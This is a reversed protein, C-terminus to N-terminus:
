KKSLKKIINELEYEDGEKYGNHKYVVRGNQDVILTYPVDKFNFARRLSGTKDSLITYDWKKARVTPKVRAFTKSDDISVAVIEVNYKEQWEPYFDMLNDLEKKCPSCWTAWFNLITIQGRKAVKKLNVKKGDLKTAVVNPVPKQANITAISFCVVLISLLLRKM